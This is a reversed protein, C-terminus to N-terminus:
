AHLIGWQFWCSEKHPHMSENVDFLQLLSNRMWMNCTIFVYQDWRSFGNMSHPKQCRTIDQATNSLCSLSRAINVEHKFGKLSETVKQDFFLFFYLPSSPPLASVSPLSFPYETACCGSVRCVRLNWNESERVVHLPFATSAATWHQRGNPQREAIVEVRILPLASSFWGTFERLDRCHYLHFSSGQFDSFYEWLGFMINIDTNSISVTKLRPMHIEKLM